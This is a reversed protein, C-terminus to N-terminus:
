KLMIHVHASIAATPKLSPRSRSLHRKFSAKLSSCILQNIAAVREPLTTNKWNYVAQECFFTQSQTWLKTNCLQV